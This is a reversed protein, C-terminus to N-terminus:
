LMRLWVISGEISLLTRRDPPCAHERIDVEGGQSRGTAAQLVVAEVVLGFLCDFVCRAAADADGELVCGHVAQRVRLAVRVRSWGLNM